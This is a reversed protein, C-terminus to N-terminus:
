DIKGHQSEHWKTFYVDLDFFYQYMVSMAICLIPFAYIPKFTDLYICILVGLCYGNIIPQPLIRNDENSVFMCLNMLGFLIQFLYVFDPNFRSGVAFEVGIAFELFEIFFIIIRNM